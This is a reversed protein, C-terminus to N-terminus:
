LYLFTVRNKGNRKSIYLAQDAREIIQQRSVKKDATTVGMSITVKFGDEFELKEIEKRLREATQVAIAKNVREMIIGFEEGGYRGAIDQEERIGLSITKAIKKLVLNGIEHGFRDNIYKFNDIDAMIFSIPYNYKIAKEIAVDLIRIFFKYAYLGTLGDEAAEKHLKRIEFYKDKLERYLKDLNSAMANFTRSLLGFEDKSKLNARIKLNGKGLEKAVMAVHLIPRTLLLSIATTLIFSLIGLIGIIPLIEMIAERKAIQLGEPRLKVIGYGLVKGQATISDRFLFNENQFNKPVKGTFLDPIIDGKDDLFAAYEVDSQRGIRNLKANLVSYSRGAEEWAAFIGVDVSCLMNALAEGRKNIEKEVNEMQKKFMAFFVITTTLLVISFILLPFKLKISM